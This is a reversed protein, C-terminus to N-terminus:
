SDESYYDLTAERTGQLVHKPGKVRTRFVTSDHLFFLIRLPKSPARGGEQIVEWGYKSLRTATLDSFCGNKLNEGHFSSKPPPSAGFWPKHILGFPCLGSKTPVATGPVWFRTHLLFSPLTKGSWGDLAM